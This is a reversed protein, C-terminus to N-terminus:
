PRPIRLVTPTPAIAHERQEWGGIPRIARGWCLREDKDLWLGAPKGVGYWHLVARAGWERLGRIKNPLTRRGLGESVHLQLAEEALTFPVDVFGSEPKSEDQPQEAAAPSAPRDRLPPVLLEAEVLEWPEPEVLGEERWGSPEEENVRFFACAIEWKEHVYALQEETAPAQRIATDRLVERRAVQYDRYAIRASSLPEHLPPGDDDPGRATVASLPPDRRARERITSRPRRDPAWLFHARLAQLESSPPMTPQPGSDLEDIAIELLEDLTVEVFQPAFAPPALEAAWAVARVVDAETARSMDLGSHDLLLRGPSTPRALWEGDRAVLHQLYKRLQSAETSLEASSGPMGVTPWHAAEWAALRAEDEDSWGRDM